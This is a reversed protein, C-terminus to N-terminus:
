NQWAMVLRWECLKHVLVLLLDQVARIQELQQVLSPAAQGLGGCFVGIGNELEPVLLAAASEDDGVGMESPLTATRRLIARVLHGM